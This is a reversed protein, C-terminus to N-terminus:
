EIHINSIAVQDGTLAVYINEPVDRLTTVSKLVVGLNQTTVTILNNERHIDVVCDMGEKFRTKWENWGPFDATHNIVIDNKVFEDSEWNEGDLRVLVFEKYRDGNVKSDM